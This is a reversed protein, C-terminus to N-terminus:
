ERKFIALIELHRTRPFFDFPRIRIVQWGGAALAQLNLAFSAPDCSLYVLYKVRKLGNLLVLAEASLGARPPDVMVVNDSSLAGNLVEPLIAEVRGEKVDVNGLDNAAINFQALRVAHVNEEINVVGSVLDNVCLGFLGVGGYLDLFLAEKSWIDQQRLFDILGPLISLNAQFFTDLSYSIRRGLIDTYFYDRAELRLSRRGIGGWRVRGEDGCRVTLNAMRYDQPIKAAAEARLRPIYDAIPAMAIPCTDIEIVPGREVPSFGMHVDGNRRHTLKLDLRNRYHSIRPSPFVPQLIGDWGTVGSGLINKLQAEKLSLEDAYSLHHYQCGGCRGFVACPVQPMIQKGAVQDTM